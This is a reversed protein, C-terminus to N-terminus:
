AGESFLSKGEPCRSLSFFFGLCAFTSLIAGHAKGGNELTAKPMYMNLNLASTCLIRIVLRWGRKVRLFSLSALLSLVSCFM